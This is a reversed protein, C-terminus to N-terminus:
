DLPSDNKVWESLSKEYTNFDKGPHSTFTLYQNESSIGFFRTIAEMYCKVLDRRKKNSRGTRVDLNMFCVFHRKRQIGLALGYKPFERVSVAIHSTGTEMIESFKKQVFNIFNKKKNESLKKNVDFQLHPM